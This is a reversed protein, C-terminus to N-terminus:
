MVKEGPLIRYEHAQLCTRGGGAVHLFFPPLRVLVTVFGACQVFGVWALGVMGKKWDRKEQPVLLHEQQRHLNGAIVVLEMTDTM